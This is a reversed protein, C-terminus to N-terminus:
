TEEEKNKKKINYFSVCFLVVTIILFVIMASSYSLAAGLVGEACILFEAAFKIYIYTVLYALILIYQCRIVILANDLVAAFTYFCGGLIIVLLEKKYNTLDIAYLLSLAPIGIVTSGLMLAIGLMILGIFIKLIIKIFEKTHGANWVVAMKTILPRFILYALNLFSAPMFIINFITQVGQQLQGQEIYVDLVMKPANMISMMLFANIFLPFGEITMKVIWYFGSSYDKKPEQFVDVRKYYRVNYYWFCAFYSISLVICAFTLNRTFYLSIGFCFTSLLVRNALAKGALDYREKQQFWGEYVDALSDIARFVCMLLVVLAKEGLYGRVLIYIGSSLIMVAITIFRYVLYQRFRFVGTIDTAQYMRIQFTGVTAMLQSISWSISFIDAQRNDLFRAVLMLAVVSLLANAINGLINWVYIEQTSPYENIDKM